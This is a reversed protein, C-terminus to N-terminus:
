VLWYTRQGQAPIPDSQNESSSSLQVFKLNQIRINEIDKLGEKAHSGRNKARIYGM